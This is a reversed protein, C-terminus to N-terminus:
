RRLQTYMIVRVQLPERHETLLPASHPSAFLSPTSYTFHSIRCLRHGVMFGLPPPLPLNGPVGVHAGLLSAVLCQAFLLIDDHQCISFSHSQSSAFHFDLPATHSYLSLPSLPLPAVVISRSMDVAALQRCVVRRPQM